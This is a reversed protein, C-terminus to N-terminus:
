FRAVTARQCALKRKWNFGLRFLFHIKGAACPVLRGRDGLVMSVAAVQVQRVEAITWDVVPLM